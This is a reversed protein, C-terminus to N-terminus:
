FHSSFSSSQLTYNIDENEGEVFILNAIRKASMLLHLSGSFVLKIFM